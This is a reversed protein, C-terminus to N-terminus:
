WANEIILKFHADDEITASINNYYEEFEQKTVVYNPTNNNRMAHSAEFTAMFEQLIQDETKKNSVVDPHRKPTYLGRIEDIDIWGNGDKDLKEFALNVINKRGVKMPGRVARIFEEYDIDGSKDYDFYDFLRQIEGETFGLRYDVMGKTFEYMDLTGSKNDDMINFSRKMGIFGKVGRKVLVARFDEALQESSRIQFNGKRDGVYPQGYLKATFERFYLVGNKDTDYYKFLQDREINNPIMIGVKEMAIKFEDKDVREDNQWDFDRKTKCSSSFARLLIDEESQIGTSKYQLKIKLEKEFRQIVGQM